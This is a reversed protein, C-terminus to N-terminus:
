LGKRKQPKDKKRGALRLNPSLAALLDFAREMSGVRERLVIEDGRRSIKVEKRKM